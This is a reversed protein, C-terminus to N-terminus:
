PSILPPAPPAAAANRRALRILGLSTILSWIWAGAFLFAGLLGIWAVSRVEVDGSIQGYYQRLIAGLWVLVIVFGALALVLQALGLALKGMMLTGLGPTALLNILAANRATAVTLPKPGFFM